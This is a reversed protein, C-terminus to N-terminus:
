SKINDRVASVAGILASLQYRSVDVNFTFILFLSGIFNGVVLLAINFETMAGVVGLLVICVSWFIGYNKIKNKIIKVIKLESVSQDDIM